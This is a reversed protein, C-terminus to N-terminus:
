LLRQLRLRGVAQVHADARGAAGARFLDVAHQPGAVWADHGVHIVIRQDDHGLRQTVAIFVDYGRSQSRSQAVCLPFWRTVSLSARCGVTAARSRSANIRSASASASAAPRAPSRGMPATRTTLPLM